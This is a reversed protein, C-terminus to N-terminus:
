WRSPTSTMATAGTPCKEAWSLPGMPAGNGYRRPSGKGGGGVVGDIHLLGPGIIQSHGPPSQLMDLGILDNVDGGRQHPIIHGPVQRLVHGHRNQHIGDRNRLGQPFLHVYGDDEQASFHGVPAVAMVEVGDLHHLAYWSGARNM